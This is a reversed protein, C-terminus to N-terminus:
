KHKKLFADRKAKRPYFCITFKRHGEVIWQCPLDITQRLLQDQSEQAMKDTPLPSWLSLAFERKEKGVGKGKRDARERGEVKEGDGM